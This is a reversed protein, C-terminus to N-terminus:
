WFNDCCSCLGNQFESMTVIAAPIRTLSFIALRCGDQIFIYSRLELCCSCRSTSTSTGRPLNLCFRADSESASIPARAPRRVCPIARQTLVCGVFRTPLRFFPTNEEQALADVEAKHALLSPLSCSYSLQANFALGIPAPRVAVPLGKVEQATRHHPRSDPGREDAPRHHLLRLLLRLM